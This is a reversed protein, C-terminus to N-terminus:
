GQQVRIRRVGHSGARGEFKGCLSLRQAWRRMTSAAKTLGARPKSPEEEARKCDPDEAIRDRVHGPHSGTCASTFVQTLTENRSGFTARIPADTNQHQRQCQNKKISRSRKL